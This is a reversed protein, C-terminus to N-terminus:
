RRALMFVPEFEDSDEVCLVGLIERAVDCVTLEICFCESADSRLERFTKGVIAPEGLTPVKPCWDEFSGGGGDESLGDLRM